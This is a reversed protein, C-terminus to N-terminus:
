AMNNSRYTYTKFLNDDNMVMCLCRYIGTNFKYYKANKAGRTFLGGRASMEGLSCVM